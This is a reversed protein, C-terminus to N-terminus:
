GSLPFYGLLRHIKFHHICHHPLILRLSIGEVHPTLVYTSLNIYYYTTQSNQLTENSALSSVLINPRIYPGQLSLDPACMWDNQTWWRHARHDPSTYTFPSFSYFRWYARSSEMPLSHPIQPPIPALRDHLFLPHQNANWGRHKRRLKRCQM